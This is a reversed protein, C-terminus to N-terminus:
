SRAARWSLYAGLGKGFPTDTTLFLYDIGSRRFLNAYAELKGKVFARYADRIAEPETKLTGRTECDELLVPGEFPLEVEAPDMVHFVLVEHKRAHLMRLTSVLGESDALLDSFVMVFGKKRLSRGLSQFLGNVDWVGEGAVADLRRFYLDLHGRTGSAPLLGDRSSLGIADHQSVVLYGLAAAMTRAYELKSPRGAWAFNMSASDDMVVTAGINTQEEYQRIVLRDTRGFIKWDLGKPDDGPNYPRHESFDQAHGRNLNVHHGSYLGDLIRRARLQLNGLQAIVIPDLNRTPM